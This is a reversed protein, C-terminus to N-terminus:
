DFRRTLFAAPPMTLLGPPAEERGHPLAGRGGSPARQSAGDPREGSISAAVTRYKRVMGKYSGPSLAWAGAARGLTEPPLSRERHGPEDERKGGAESPGMVGLTLRLVDETTM